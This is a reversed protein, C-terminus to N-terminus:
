PLPRPRVHRSIDGYLDGIARRRAWRWVGDVQTFEDRYRGAYIPQLAFDPLAQFVTVYSSATATTGDVDVDVILNTTVHKTGPRGDHLLVWEDIWRRAAAVGPEARHWQGQEFQAAFEDFRATDFLTCYRHIMGTLVAVADSM